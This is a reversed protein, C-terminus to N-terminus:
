DRSKRWKVFSALRNLNRRAADNKPEFRLVSKYDAEAESFSELREYALARSLLVTVNKPQAKLVLSFDEVAGAYDAGMSRAQARLRRAQINEPEISLAKEADALASKEQQTLYVSGRMLYLEARDPLLNIASTYDDVASTYQERAFRDAARRQYLEALLKSIEDNKNGFWLWNSLDEIGEDLKGQDTYAVARAFFAQDNKGDFEIALKYDAHVLVTIVQCHRKKSRIM